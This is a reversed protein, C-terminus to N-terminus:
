EESIKNPPVFSGLEYEGENKFEIDDKIAFPM